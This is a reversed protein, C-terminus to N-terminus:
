PDRASKLADWSRAAEGVSAALSALCRALEEIDFRSDRRRSLLALFPGDGRFTDPPGLSKDEGREDGEENESEKNM